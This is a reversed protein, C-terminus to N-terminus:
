GEPRRRVGALRVLGSARAEHVPIVVVRLVASHASAAQVSWRRIYLTGVPPASGSGTLLGGAADMYDVFGDTDAELAAPPSIRPTEPYAQLEQIKQEALLVAVSVRNAMRVADGSMAFLQALTAAGAIVIATAILVEILSFGNAKM